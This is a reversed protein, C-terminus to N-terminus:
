QGAPRLLAPLCMKAEALGAVATDSSYESRKIKTCFDQKFGRADDIAHAM